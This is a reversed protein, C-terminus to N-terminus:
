HLAGQILEAHGTDELFRRVSRLSTVLTQGPVPVDFYWPPEGGQSSVRATGYGEVVGILSGTRAEYVGAGSAGYSVSADVMLRSNSKSETPRERDVQSVVGRALTLRRGWPFAVVWVWEGLAAERKISAPTCQDSEAKLLALDRNDTESEALVTAQVKTRRGEDSGFIVYVEKVGASGSFTHGATLVFCETGAIVPRTAIIVGSAMRVRGGEQQESVVQVASPLIRELVQEDTPEWLHAIACGTGSLVVSVALALGSLVRRLGHRARWRTMDTALM